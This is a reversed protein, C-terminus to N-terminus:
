GICVSLFMQGVWDLFLYSMLCFRFFLSGVCSFGARLRVRFVCGDGTISLCLPSHFKVGVGYLNGIGKDKHLFAIDSALNINSFGSYLAARAM